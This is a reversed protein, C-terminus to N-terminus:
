HLVFNGFGCNVTQNGSCSSYKLLHFSTLNVAVKQCKLLADGLDNEAIPSVLIFCGM